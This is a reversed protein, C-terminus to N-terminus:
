FDYSYKLSFRSQFDTSDNYENINSLNLSLRRSFFYNFEFETFQWTESNQRTESSVDMDTRVRVFLKESFLAWMLNVGLRNEEVVGDHDNGRLSQGVNWDLRFDYLGIKEALQREFPRVRSRFWITAQREGFRDFSADTSDALVGPMILRLGDQSFRDSANGGGLQVEYRQIFHADRGVVASRTEYEEVIVSEELRDLRGTVMLVGATYPYEEVVSGSAVEGSLLSKEIFTIGRFDFVPILQRRTGNEPVDTVFSVKNASVKDPFESFFFRQRDVPMVEFVRDFFSITGERIIIAGDIVPLAMSGGLHVKTEPPHEQIELFFNNAISWIGGGFLGGEAYMGKGIVLDLDLLLSPRSGSSSVRPVTVRGEEFFVSGSLVPAQENATGRQGLRLLRADNSVPIVVPGELALNRLKVKGRYMNQLELDLDSDALHLQSMFRFESLEYLNLSEIRISGSLGMLNATKREPIFFRSRIMRNLNLEVRNLQLHNNAFVVSGKALSLRNGVSSKGPDFDVYFRDLDIIPASFVPSALTGDVKVFVRGQNHITQVKPVLFGLMSVDDGELDLELGVPREAGKKQWHGSLPYFGTLFGISNHNFARVFSREFHLNGQEDYRMDLSIKDFSKGLILGDELRWQTQVGATDTKLNLDFKASSVQGIHGDRIRLDGNIIPMKDPRSVLTLDGEFIGALDTKILRDDSNGREFDHDASVSRFYEVEDGGGGLQYVARFGSSLTAYHLDRPVDYVTINGNSIEEEQYTTFVRREKYQTFIRESRSLFDIIDTLNVDDFRLSMDYDWEGPLHGIVSSVDLRGDLSVRNKDLQARVHSLYLQSNEYRVRGEFSDLGVGNVQFQELQIFMNASSENTNQGYFGDVDLVGTTDGFQATLSAFDSLVISTGPKLRVNFNQTSIWKGSALLQSENYHVAFDDVRIGSQSYQGSVFLSDFYQGHINGDIIRARGSIARDDLELEGSLIGRVPLLAEPLRDQLWDGDVFPWDELEVKLHQSDLNRYTGTVAIVGEELRANVKDLYVTDDGYRGVFQAESLRKGFLAGGKLRVDFTSTFADLLRERVMRSFDYSVGVDFSMKGLPSPGVNPNVDFYTMDDVSLNLSLDTLERINGTGTIVDGGPTFVQVSEIAIRQKDEVVMHVGLESIPQSYATISSGTAVTDVWFQDWNGHLRSELNAKGTVFRAMLPFTSELSFDRVSFNMNFTPYEGSLHLEGDGGFDGTMLTGSAIDFALVHNEIHYRIDTNTPELGYFYANKVALDGAIVPHSLPGTIGVALDTNGSFKLASLVPFLRRFVAIDFQKSNFNLDIISRHFDIVGGGDLPMGDLNGTIGDFSIKIGQKEPEEALFITGRVADVPSDFFPIKLMLDTTDVAISYTFPIEKVDQPVPYKSVIQGRVNVQDGSVVYDPMPLVYNGWHDLDMKSLLFNFMYRGTKPHVAGNIVFPQNTRGYRGSVDLPARATDAFDMYGNLGTFTTLFPADRLEHVWGRDDTYSGSVNDFVLKGVFAIESGSESNPAFIFDFFNWTGDRTRHVDLDMNVFAVQDIAALFDGRSRFLLRFLSYDVVVMDARVLRGNKLDDFSAIEVGHCKVQSLLNGSIGSIEIQRKYLKSLEREVIREIERQPVNSRYLASIPVYAMLFAMLLIFVVLRTVGTFKIM